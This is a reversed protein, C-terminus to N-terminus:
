KFTQPKIFRRLITSKVSCSNRNFSLEKRRHRYLHILTMGLTFIISGIPLVDGYRAYFTEEERIPVNAVIVAETFLKSEYPVEGNPLVYMSIGTNACRIVPIRFEIARMIPMTAHQYPGWSRGFWADETINVLLNAGNLVFRRVLRPFISEFCILVAINYGDLHFVKFEKGKAFNGQGFRFIRQLVPFYEDFPLREAFPVLYIKDYHDMGNNPVLLIASNYVKGNDLRTAGFILPTNISDVFEVIKHYFIRNTDLVFPFATEPWVILDVNLNHCMNELKDIRGSLPLRKVYPEINPQIIAVKLKPWYQLAMKKVGYLYICVFLTIIPIIMWRRRLFLLYYLLLNVLMVIFSIGYIGVIDAVQVMKLYPVLAYGVLGWAFGIESTLSRLFELGVWLFPTMWMPLIKAGVGVLVWPISLYIILLTVGVILWGKAHGVDAFYLWGYYIANFIIAAVGTSICVDRLPRNRIVWLLPIYFIFVLIPLYRFAILLLSGSLIGLILPKCREIQM